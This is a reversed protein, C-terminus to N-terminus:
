PALLPTKVPAHKNLADRATSVAAYAEKAAALAGHDPQVLSSWEPDALRDAPEDIEVCGLHQLRRMLAERDSSMAFLRLRKMKVISM